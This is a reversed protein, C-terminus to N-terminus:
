LSYSHSHSYLQSQSQSYSHSYPAGSSSSTSSCCTQTWWMTESSTWWDDRSTGPKEAWPSPKRHNRSSRQVWSPLMSPTWVLETSTISPGRRRGRIWRTTDKLELQGLRTLGPSIKWDGSRQHLILFIQLFLCLDKHHFIKQSVQSPIIWGTLTTSGPWTQNLCVKM